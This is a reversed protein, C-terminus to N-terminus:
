GGSIAGIIIFPEAGTAISGPLVTDPSQHSIDEKEVYFRVRPRRKLSGHERITGSLTPYAAELADLISSVTVPEDAELHVDGDVGALNRLHFPLVVRIM